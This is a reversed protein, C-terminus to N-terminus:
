EILHTCYMSPICISLKYFIPVWVCERLGVTACFSSNIVSAVWPFAFRSGDPITLLLCIIANVCSSCCSLHSGAPWSALYLCSHFMDFM